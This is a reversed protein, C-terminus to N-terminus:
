SRALSPNSFSVVAAGQVWGSFGPGGYVVCFRSSVIPAYSGVVCVVFLILSCSLVWRSLGNSCFVLGFLQRLPSFFLSKGRTEAECGFPGCSLSSVCFQSCVGQQLRLD